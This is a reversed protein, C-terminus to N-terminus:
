EITTTVLWDHESVVERHVVFKSIQNLLDLGIEYDDEDRYKIIILFSTKHYDETGPGPIMVTMGASGFGLVEGQMLYNNAKLWKVFTQRNVRYAFTFVIPKDERPREMSVHISLGWPLNKDFTKDILCKGDRILKEINMATEILFKRINRDEVTSSMLRSTASTKM